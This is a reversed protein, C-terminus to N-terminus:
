RWCLPSLTLIKLRAQFDIRIAFDDKYVDRGRLIPRVRVDYITRQNSFSFFM